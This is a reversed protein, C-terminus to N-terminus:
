RRGLGRLVPLGTSFDLVLRDGLPRGLTVIATATKLIKPCIKGFGPGEEDVDVVVVQDTEYARAGRVTDCAGYGYRLVLDRPKGGVVDYGMVEEVAGQVREPRAAVAAPDVAVHVKKQEVGEVTFLWAPVRVAGRSTELPVEGLKAGTVRLPRCGKAPCEEEILGAPESFEAYASAATILPVQSVEGDPWRVDARRPSEAPLEAALRWAGNHASRNVWAPVSGVRAWGRPNLVELAVFGGRWDRDDASGQWREAVERARSEFEDPPVGQSRGCSGLFLVLFLGAIVRWM